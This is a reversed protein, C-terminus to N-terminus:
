VLSNPFIKLKQSQLQAITSRSRASRYTNWNIPLEHQLMDQKLTTVHSTFTQSCKNNGLFRECFILVVVELYPTSWTMIVDDINLNEMCEFFLLKASM